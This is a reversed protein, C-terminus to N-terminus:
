LVLPPPVTASSLASSFHSTDTCNYEDHIKIDNILSNKRTIQCNYSQYNTKVTPVLFQPTHSCTTVNENRHTYKFHCISSPSIRTVYRSKQNKLM